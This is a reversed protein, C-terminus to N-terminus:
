VPYRISLCSAPRENRSGQHPDRCDGEHHPVQASWDPEILEPGQNRVNGVTEGVPFWEFEETPQCLEKAIEEARSPTIGPDLWENAHEPTLVLPHRDHIDVMGQDSAATIIVF